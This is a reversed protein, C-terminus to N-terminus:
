GYVVDGFINEVEAATLEQPDDREIPWAIESVNFKGLLQRQLITTGRRGADNNDLALIVTDGLSALLRQQTASCRVGMLAVATTIGHQHLWIADLPGEVLVTIGNKPHFNAGFLHKSKDFGPSFFYKAPLTSGPVARRIVGVLKKGILDLVPIVISLSVPDYKFGWRRLTKVSFGRDLIYSSTRDSVQNRYDIMFTNTDPLVVPTLDSLSDWVDEVTVEGGNIALWRQAEDKELDKLRSVLTVLPGQGCGTFCIWRGTDTFVSFSADRDGHAHNSPWPCSAQLRDPTSGIVVIGLRALVREVNM